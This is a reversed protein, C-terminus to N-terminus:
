SSLESTPATDISTKYLRESIIKWSQISWQMIPGISLSFVLTGIAVPGGMIWGATLVAIEMFTKVNRISRRTMHSLIIMLGDRPGAGWDASIYMGAGYGMSVIGLLLLAIQWFWLEPVPIWGTLFIFDIFEGVVIMNLICGITPIKRDLMYTIGIICLGAIQSWTGVSLGLVNYLGYHFVDWPSVGLGAEFTMVIGLSMIFLGVFFLLFQIIFKRLSFREMFRHFNRVISTLQSV